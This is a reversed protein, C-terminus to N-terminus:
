QVAIRLGVPLHDSHAPCVQQTHLLALSGDDTNSLHESSLVASPLIGEAVVLGVV